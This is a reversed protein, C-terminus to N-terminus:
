ESAWCEFRPPLPAATPLEVWSLLGTKPPVRMTHLFVSELFPLSRISVVQHSHSCCVAGGVASDVGGDSRATM